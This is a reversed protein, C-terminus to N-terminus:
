ISILLMGDQEDTPLNDKAIVKYIEFANLIPPADSQSTASIRFSIDGHTTAEVSIPKMYELPLPQTTVPQSNLTINIIRKQGDLLKEDIEAFHFYVYYEYRMNLATYATDHVYELSQSVNPSKVASSWVQDPLKYDNTTRPDFDISGSLPQWGYEDDYKPNCLWIRDYM